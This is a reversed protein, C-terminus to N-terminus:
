KKQTILYATGSVSGVGVTAGVGATVTVPAFLVMATIVIGTFCVVSISGFVWMATNDDKRGM